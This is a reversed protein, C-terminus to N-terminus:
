WESAEFQHTRQIRPDGCGGIVQHMYSYGQADHGHIGGPQRGHRSAKEVEIAEAFHWSTGYHIACGAM